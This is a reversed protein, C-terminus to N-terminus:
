FDKAQMWAADIEADTLGVVPALQAFLPDNRDFRLTHKWKARAVARQTADEIADIAAEVAAEKDLIELMAFFQYPELPYDNPDTSPAPAIEDEITNGEDLWAQVVPWLRSAETIGNWMAGEIPGATITGDTKRIATFAM